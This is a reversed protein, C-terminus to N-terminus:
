GQAKGSRSSGAQTFVRSIYFVCNELPADFTAHATHNSEWLHLQDFINRPTARSSFFKSGAPRIQVIISGRTQVIISGRSLSPLSRHDGEVCEPRGETQRVRAREDGLNLHQQFHRAKSVSGVSGAKAASRLALQRVDFIVALPNGVRRENAPMQFVFVAYIEVLSQRRLLAGDSPREFLHRLVTKIPREHIRAPEILGIEGFTWFIEESF